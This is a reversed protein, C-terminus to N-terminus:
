QDTSRVLPNLSLCSKAEVLCIPRMQPFSQQLESLGDKSSFPFRFEIFYHVFRLKLIWEGAMNSSRLKSFIVDKDTYQLPAASISAPRM